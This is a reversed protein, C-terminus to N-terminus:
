DILAWDRIFLPAPFPIIRERDVEVRVRSEVEVGIDPLHLHNFVYEMDQCNADSWVNCATMTHNAGFTDQPVDYISLIRLELWVTDSNIIRYLACGQFIAVLVLAMIFSTLKGLYKSKISNHKM